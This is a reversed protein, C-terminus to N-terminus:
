NVEQAVQDKDLVVDDGSQASRSSKALLGRLCEAVYGSHEAMVQQVEDFGFQVEQGGPSFSYKNKHFDVIGAEVLNYFCSLANDIGRRYGIYFLVSTEPIAGDTQSKVVKASCLIGDEEGEVQYAKKRKVHLRLRSQFKLANGGGSEARKYPLPNAISQNLVLLCVNTKALPMVVTNFLVKLTKYREMMAIKKGDEVNDREAKTPCSAITDWVIISPSGCDKEKKTNLFKLIGSFAEEVTDPESVLIRDLVAGMGELRQRSRNPESLIFYPTAGSDLAHIIAADALTSKGHGPDGYIECVRGAPLGGGILLDVPPCGTVIRGRSYSSIDGSAPGSGVVSTQFFSLMSDKKKAM